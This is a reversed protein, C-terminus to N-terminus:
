NDPKRNAPVVTDSFLPEVARTRANRVHKILNGVYEEYRQPLERRITELRPTFGRLGIELRKFNNLVKNNNKDSRLLFDLTNDLLGHFGGLERFMGDFDAGSNLREAAAFRAQMLELALKTRAKVDTQADLSTREQKSVIILPPPVTDPLDDQASATSLLFAFTFLFFYPILAIRGVTSGSKTLSKGKVKQRKGEIM